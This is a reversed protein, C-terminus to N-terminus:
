CRFFSGFFSILVNHSGLTIFLRKVDPRILQIPKGNNQRPKTKYAQDTANKLVDALTAVAEELISHRYEKSFVAKLLVNGTAPITTSASVYKLAVVCIALLLFRFSRAM